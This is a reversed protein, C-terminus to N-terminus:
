KLQIVKGQVSHHDDSLYFMDDQISCNLKMSRTIFSNLEDVELHYVSLNEFRQLKPEIKQWWVNLQSAQFCYIVVQNAQGCAKRIREISIQGIDIWLDIENNLTKQWIAPTNDTSIGKTFMLTEDAHLMFAILRVMLRQQTESPHQAITIAHSQYYQRRMDAIELQTKYVTSKIAM